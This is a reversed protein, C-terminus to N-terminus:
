NQRESVPKAGEVERQLHDTYLIGNLHDIEHQFIVATFDEVIEMEHARNMKDYEVIISYPRTVTDRRNPISLCGELCDQTLTSEQV